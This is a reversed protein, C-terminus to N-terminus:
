FYLSDVLRIVRNIHDHFQQGALREVVSNLIPIPPEALLFYLPNHSSQQPSHPMHMAFPDHMPIQLRLVDHQPSIRQLRNNYVEPQRSKGVHILIEEESASGWAVHGRLDEFQGLELMDLGYAIHKRKPSDEMQEEAPLGQECAALIFFYAPVVSLAIKRKISIAKGINGVRRPLKQLPHQYDIWLAPYTWRLGQVM